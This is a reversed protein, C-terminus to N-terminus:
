RGDRLRLQRQDDRRPRAAPSDSRRLRPSPESVEAARHPQRCQANRLRRLPEPARRGRGERSAGARARRQSHRGGAVSTGDRAHGRLAGDRLPSDGFLHDDLFYLHRGPLREIEALAADVTQTYFSRGGEFFAEKYCFDCVHPCGRSVVISNPVLYLHRKILDRRIPPVGALTRSRRSTSRTGPQRAQFRRSLAAVHRRRARPLDHGRAPAGRGATVDRSPRRAGRARRQPPLPGRPSLRPVRLHHLGSHCRSGARRRPRASSTSTRSRRDDDDGLYGALTALGLPPFLSYKIPRFFPSTAETLAPLIMKVKM